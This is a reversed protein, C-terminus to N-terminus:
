NYMTYNYCLKEKKKKLIIFEHVFFNCSKCIRSSSKSGWYLRTHRLSAKQGTRLVLFVFCFLVMTLLLTSTPFFYVCIDRVM